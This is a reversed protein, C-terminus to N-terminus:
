RDSGREGGGGEGMQENVENGKKTQREEASVTARRETREDRQPGPASTRFFNWSGPSYCTLM